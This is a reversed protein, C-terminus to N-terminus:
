HRRPAVRKLKEALLSSNSNLKRADLYKRYAGASDGGAALADAEFVLQNYQKWRSEIEERETNFGPDCESIEPLSNRADELRGLKLNRAIDKRSKRIAADIERARLRLREVNAKSAAAQEPSMSPDAKPVRLASQVFLRCPMGSSAAQQAALVGFLVFGIGMPVKLPAAREIRRTHAPFDERWFFLRAGNDM